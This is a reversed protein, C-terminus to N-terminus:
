ENKFTTNICNCSKINEIDNVDLIKLPIPVLYEIRSDKDCIKGSWYNESYLDVSCICLNDAIIDRWAADCKHFTDASINVINAEKLKLKNFWFLCSELSDCCCLSQFRSPLEPYHEQRYKELIIEAVFQPYFSISPAYNTYIFGMHSLNNSFKSECYEIIEENSNEPIHFYDITQDIKLSKTRDLHFFNM